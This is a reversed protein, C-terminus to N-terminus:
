KNLFIEFDIGIENTLRENTIGEKIRFKIIAEELRDSFVTNPLVIGLAIILILLKNLM